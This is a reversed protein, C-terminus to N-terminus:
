IRTRTLSPGSLSPSARVTATVEPSRSTCRTSTTGAMLILARPRLYKLRSQAARGTLLITLEATRHHTGRRRATGSEPSPEDVRDGRDKALKIAQNLHELAEQSQGLENYVSGLKNLLNSQLGTLVGARVLVLEQKWVEVARENEGLAYYSLGLSSLTDVELSQDSLIRSLHLARDFTSISKYQDATQFYVRALLNLATVEGRRDQLSQWGQIAQSLYELAKENENMLRYADGIYTLTAAEAQHDSSARAVPLAQQHYDLAKQYEGQAFYSRGILNLIVSKMQQDGARDTLLLSEHYKAIAQSLFEKTPQTRLQNAESILREATNIARNEDTAPQLRELGVQYSGAPDTKRISRVEIQYVGANNAVLSAAEQGREGHRDDVNSLQSGDPGLLTLAVDIGRQDVVVRLFQADTMRVEYFHSKGGELRRELYKGPELLDTKQQSNQGLASTSRPASLSERQPVVLM